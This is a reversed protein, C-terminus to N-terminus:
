TSIKSIFHVTCPFGPGSDHAIVNNNSTPTTIQVTQGAKPSARAGASATPCDRAWVSWITFSGM